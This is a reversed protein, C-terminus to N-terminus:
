IRKWSDIRVPYPSSEPPGTISVVVEVLQTIGTGTDGTGTITVLPYNNVVTASYSSGSAPPFTVTTVGASWLHNARLQDICHEVAADAFFLAQQELKYYKSSELDSLAVQLFGIVTISSIGIIIISLILAGGRDNKIFQSLNVKM